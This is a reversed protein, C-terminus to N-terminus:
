VMPFMMRAWLADDLDRRSDVVALVKVRVEEKCYFIRWPSVVLERFGNIQLYDLETPIKGLDPFKELVQCEKKIRALADQANKPSSAAIHMIISKLDFSASESWEVIIKKSAM